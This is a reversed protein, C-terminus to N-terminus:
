CDRLVPLSETTPIDTIFWGQDNVVYAYVHHTADPYKSKIKELEALADKETETKIAYSIFRSKKETIESVADQKITYVAKDSGQRAM